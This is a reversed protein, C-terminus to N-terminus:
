PLRIRKPVEEQDLEWAILIGQPGLFDNIEQTKNSDVEWLWKNENLQTLSGNENNSLIWDKLTVDNILIELHKNNLVNAEYVMRLMHNRYRESGEYPYFLEKSWKHGNENKHITAYSVGEFYNLVTREVSYKFSIPM